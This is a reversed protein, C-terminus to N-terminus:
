GPPRGGVKFASALTKMGLGFPWGRIGSGTLRGMGNRVWRSQEGARGRDRTAPHRDKASASEARPAWAWSLTAPARGKRPRGVSAKGEKKDGPGSGWDSSALSNWAVASRSRLAEPAKWSSLGPLADAPDPGEDYLNPGTGPASRMSRNTDWERARPFSRMSPSHMLTAVPATTRFFLKMPCVAATSRMACRITSKRTPLTVPVGPTASELSTKARSVAGPM